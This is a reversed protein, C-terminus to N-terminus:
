KTNFGLGFNCKTLASSVKQEKLSSCEKRWGKEFATPSAKRLLKLAV